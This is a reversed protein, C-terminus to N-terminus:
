GYKVAYSAGHSSHVISAVHKMLRSLGQYIWWVGLLEYIVVKNLNVVLEQISFLSSNM